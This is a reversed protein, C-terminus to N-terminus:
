ARATEVYFARRAPSLSLIEAESWGYASALTHVDLMLHRARGEVESWLFAVLDLSQDFSGGCAPCDFHLMIEALPDAEAMSEGVADLDREIWEPNATPDTLGEEAGSLMCREMLRMAAHRPDHEGSIFALDRSTPLRFVKGDVRVSGDSAPSYREALTNGDLEFELKDGCDECATWGRIASGFSVSRLQALAGNRRGLPWDAVDEGRTEPFAAHVALLGRDLPHLAQGSEWLALCDAQSLVRM